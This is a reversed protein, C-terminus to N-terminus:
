ILLIQILSTYIRIYDTMVNFFFNTNQMLDKTKESVEKLIFYISTFVFLIFFSSGIEFSCVLLPLVFTNLCILLFVEDLRGNILLVLCIYSRM